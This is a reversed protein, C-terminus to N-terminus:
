KSAMWKSRKRIAPGKIYLVLPAFSLAVAIFGLLSSAWQFGLNTYMSQAALPLFASFLNEVCAVAAIASGSWIQYADTIYTAVCQVVVMIGIGVVVLGLTPAIWHIDPYSTWAYIFLGGAMGVFSCPISLTLRAEPVPQGPDDLNKTASRAYIRNQWLCIPLGIVEGVVLAGQVYGVQIENFDYNAEYIQLISQTAVFVNGVAVACWLTFFFVVPETLFLHAPRVTSEYLMRSLSQSADQSLKVPKEVTKSLVKAKRALLIKGRTEKIMLFAVPFIAGYLILEIYFIWRWSLGSAIAAGFVPGMTFGTLYAFIFMTVPLGTEEGVWLDGIINEVGNQVVSACGGAFFRTVILTAYNQALAQPIIFATFIVYSM